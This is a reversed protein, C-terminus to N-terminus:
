FWYENMDSVTQGDIEEEVCDPIIASIRCRPCLATQGDDVFDEIDGSEFAERCFFCYCKKSRLVMDRNHLSYAHLKEFLAEEDYSYPHTRLMKRDGKYKIVTRLALYVAYASILIVAGKLNSRGKTYDDAIMFIFILFVVFANFLVDRILVSRKHEKKAEKYNNKIESASLVSSGLKKRIREMVCQEDFSIRSSCEPCKFRYDYVDYDVRPFRGRKHYRYYDRDEKTVVRHTREKELTAGCKACHYKKFKMGISISYVKGNLLKM